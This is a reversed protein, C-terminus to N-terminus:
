RVNVVGYIGTAASPLNEYAWTGPETLFVEYTEGTTAVHPQDLDSYKATSLNESRSGVRMALTSENVFRVSEGHDITLEAPSFSTGDFYVFNVYHGDEFIYAPRASGAGTSSSSSSESGRDMVEEQQEVVEDPQVASNGGWMYWGGFALVAVILVAILAKNNM